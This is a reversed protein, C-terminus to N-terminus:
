GNASVYSGFVARITYHMRMAKPLSSPFHLFTPLLPLSLRLSIHVGVSVCMCVRMCVRVCVRMCRAQQMGRETLPADRLKMDMKEHYPHVNAVSEGHRVFYVLKEFAKLRIVGRTCEQVETLHM